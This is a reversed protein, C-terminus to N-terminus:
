TLVLPDHFQTTACLAFVANIEDRWVAQLEVDGSVGRLRGAARSARGLLQQKLVTLFETVAGRVEATRQFDGRQELVQPLLRDLQRLEASVSQQQTLYSSAKGMEGECLAEARLKSLLAWERRYGEIQLEISGECAHAIPMVVREAVAPEEIKVPDATIAKAFRAPVRDYHRRLWDPMREPHDLPPPDSSKRGEALWNKIQRQGYGYREAWRAIAGHPARNCTESGFLDVM